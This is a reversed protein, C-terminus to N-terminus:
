FPIDSDIDDFGSPGRDRPQQQPQRDSPVAPRGNSQREYGGRSQNQAPRQQQRTDDQSGGEERRENPMLVLQNAIIETVYRKSGDKEYERTKLRGEIYVLNGKQLYEGAIEAQRQFLTIRHWETEEVNDGSQKDKWKRSTALNLNCVADGNPMYRVEPDKGLRGMITVSNVSSM